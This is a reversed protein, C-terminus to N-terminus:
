KLQIDLLIDLNENWLAGIILKCFHLLDNPKRNSEGSIFRDLGSNLIRWNEDTIVFSADHSARNRIKRFGNLISYMRDDIYNLENLLILKVSLPYDRNSSTIRKKGHKCKADIIRNLFLEIFGHTIIVLSRHHQKVSNLEEYFAVLADNNNEKSSRKMTM